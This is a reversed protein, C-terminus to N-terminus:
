DLLEEAKKLAEQTDRAKQQDRSSSETNLYFLNQKLNEVVASNVWARRQMLALATRPNGYYVAYGLPLGGYVDSVNAKGGCDAILHVFEPNSQFGAAHLPTRGFHKTIDQFNPNAGKNLFLEALHLKNYWTALTLVSQGTKEDIADVEAGLNLLKQVKLFEQQSSIGAQISRAQVILQSNLVKKLEFSVPALRKIFHGAQLTETSSLILSMGVAIALKKVM